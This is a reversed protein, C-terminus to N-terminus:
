WDQNAERLLNRFGHESMWRARAIHSEYMKQTRAYHKGPDIKLVIHSVERWDAGEREAELLRLYCILMTYDYDTLELGTPAEDVIKADPNPKPRAKM